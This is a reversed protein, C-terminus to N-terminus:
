IILHSRWFSSSYFCSWVETTCMFNVFTIRQSSLNKLLAHLLYYHILQKVYNDFLSRMDDRSISSHFFRLTVKSLYDSEVYIYLSKLCVWTLCDLEFFLMRWWKKSLYNMSNTLWIEYAPLIRHMSQMGSQARVILVFIKTKKHIHGVEFGCSLLWVSSVLLFIFM